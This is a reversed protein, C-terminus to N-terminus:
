RLKALAVRTCSANSVIRMIRNVGIVCMPATKSPASILGRQAGSSKIHSEAKDVEKFVGTCEAVYKAGCYKWKIASPDSESVM